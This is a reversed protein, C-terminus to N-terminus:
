RAACVKATFTGGIASEDDAILKLGGTITAGPTEDWNDLRVTGSQVTRTDSKATTDYVGRQLSAGHGDAYKIFFTGAKPEVAGISVAMAEAPDGVPGVGCDNDYNALSLFWQNNRKSFTLDITKPEFTQGAIWGFVPANPIEGDAGNSTGHGNENSHDDAAAGTGDNGNGTGAGQTDGTSGGDLTKGACASVSVSLFLLATLFSTRQM